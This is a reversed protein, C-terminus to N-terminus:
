QGVILKLRDLIEREGVISVLYIGQPMNSLQIQYQGGSSRLLDPDLQKILQGNLNHIMITHVKVDQNIAVTTFDRAPNPYMKIELVEDGAVKEEEVLLENINSEMRKNAGSSVIGEIAIGSISARNASSKLDLNLKGDKVEVKTFTLVTQKNGVSYLDFKAKVLKGELSIDYVRRGKAASPGTKGFYLENHYTKVTYTGNPVPIE